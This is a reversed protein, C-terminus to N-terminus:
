PTPAATAQFSSPDTFQTMDRDPTWQSGDPLFVGGLVANELNAGTMDANLLDTGRFDTGRLVAERLNARILSAGSLDADFLDADFLDAGLLDAGNLVTEVLTAERLKADRLKAARLDSGSLDANLLNTRGLDALSLNVRHLRVEILDAEQLDINNLDASNLNVGKLNCDILRLLQADSLFRVVAGLRETELQTVVVLSRSRIITEIPELEEVSTGRECPLRRANAFEPRLMLANMDDLYSQLINDKTHGDEIIRQAAERTSAIDIQLQQRDAEVTFQHSNQILTFVFGIILLALPMGIADAILWWTREKLPNREDPM